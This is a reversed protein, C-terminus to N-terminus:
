DVKWLQSQSGCGNVLGQMMRALTVITVSVHDMNSWSSSTKSM